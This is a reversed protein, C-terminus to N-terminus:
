PSAAPLPKRTLGLRPKLGRMGRLRELIFRDVPHASQGDQLDPLPPRSLPQFSWHDFIPISTEMAQQIQSQHEDIWDLLLNLEGQDPGPQDPPMRDEEHLTTLRQSTPRRPKGGRSILPEGSNGGQILGQLSDLRLDGKQQDSGHCRTCHTQFLSAIPESWQLTQATSDEGYEPM